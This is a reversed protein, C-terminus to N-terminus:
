PRYQSVRGTTPAVSITAYNPPLATLGDGLSIEHLTLFWQSNLPLTTSGDPLFRVYWCEYATGLEPLTPQAVAGGWQKANGPVFLSSVTTGSDVGVSTPLRRVEGHPKPVGDSGVLCVQLATVFNGGSKRVFWVEVQQNRAIATERALTLADRVANAGNTVGNARLVGAGGIIIAGLIMVLGM